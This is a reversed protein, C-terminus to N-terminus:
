SVQGEEALLRALDTAMRAYEAGQIPPRSHVAGLYLAGNLRALYAARAVDGTAALFLRCLLEARRADIENVVVAVTPNSQAWRRVAAELHLDEAAIIEVLRRLAEQAGVPTALDHDEAAPVDIFARRELHELFATVFGAQGKFHHYFSGHTVGARTTLAHLTLGAEGELILGECAIRFWDEQTM